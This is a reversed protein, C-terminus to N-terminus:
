LFNGRNISSKNQQVALTNNTDSTNTIQSKISINSNNNEITRGYNVNNISALSSSYNKQIKDAIATNKGNDKVNFIGM